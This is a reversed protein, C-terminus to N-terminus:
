KGYEEGRIKIRELELDLIQQGIKSKEIEDMTQKMKVKLREQECELNYEQITHIYDLIEAQDCEEKLNLSEIEGLLKLLDPKDMLTSMLDALNLEGMEQYYCNMQWVLSQLGRTPLHTMPYANYLASVERSRLMYYVLYREAIEYKSWKPKQREMRRKPEPSTKSLEFKQAYQQKLFDIDLNTDESIQRFTLEQLVADDIKSLEEMMTRIYDAISENNDFDHHNKYYSLKFDMVSMAHEIHSLFADKGYKQIYEDPDLGHELRVVKPIVGLKRLEEICSFTAKAGAEDGDFCLIIDRAMRRILSAQEKTIATGMTAVVEGIGITYARIVDMFGEMVIIMNSLRAVDKARHYNYLLEGKKFIATERSNIYKATDAEGHYIRGSYGVVHGELDWLPFMLRHYYIDHMGHENEVILGSQLLDPRLFAKKQLLTTLGESNKLALGIGFERACAEDIKRQELYEKAEFGAKTYLNNQYFKQSLTYIDYLVQNQKLSKRSSTDLQISIGARQALKQLTEPFSLHEYDMVFRFVNGTAGCSFCTYIQKTPSVSMSPSHDDHFPCVGFYNRGRQTLPLYESIIEVIDVSNRIHNMDETSIRNM